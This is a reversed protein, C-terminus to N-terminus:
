GDLGRDTKSKDGREAAAEAKMKDLRTYYDPLEKLHAIAIKATLTMNGKTIDKHELEEKLGKIFENRDYEDFSIGISQAIKDVAADSLEGETVPSFASLRSDPVVKMEEQRAQIPIMNFMSIM